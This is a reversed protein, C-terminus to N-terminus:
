DKEVHMFTKIVDALLPDPDNKLLLSPWILNSKVKVLGGFYCFADLITAVSYSDVCYGMNKLLLTFPKTIEDNTISSMIDDIMVKTTYGKVLTANSDEGDETLPEVGSAGKDRVVYEYLCQLLVFRSPRVINKVHISGLADEYRQEYGPLVKNLEDKCGDATVFIQEGKEKLCNGYDIVYYFLSVIATESLLKKVLSTRPKKAPSAADVGVDAAPQQEIVSSISAMKPRMAHIEEKSLCVTKSHDVKGDKRNHMIKFVWKSHGEFNSIEARQVKTLEVDWKKGETLSSCIDDMQEALIKWASVSLQCPRWKELGAFIDFLRFLEGTWALVIVDYFVNFTSQILICFVCLHLIIYYIKLLSVQLTAHFPSM